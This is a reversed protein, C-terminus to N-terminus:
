PQNISPCIQLPPSRKFTSIFFGIFTRYVIVDKVGGFIENQQVRGGAM